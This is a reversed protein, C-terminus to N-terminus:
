KIPIYEDIFHNTQYITILKELILIVGIFIAGSLLEPKLTMVYIVSVCLFQLSLFTEALVHAISLGWHGVYFYGGGPVLMSLKQAKERNKFVQGCRTCLYVQPQLEATCRPCLHVRHSPEGEPEPM